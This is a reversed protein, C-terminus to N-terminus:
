GAFAAEAESQTKFIPLVTDTHTFEFITHVRQSMGFLAYKVGTHQSHAWRDLLVGLGASDIYLVGSLDIIVDKLVPDRLTKQFDFMTWLVLPGKLRFITTDPSSGTEWEVSLPEM